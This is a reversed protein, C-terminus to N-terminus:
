YSFIIVSDASFKGIRGYVDISTVPYQRAVGNALPPMNSVRPCMEQYVLQPHFHTIVVVSEKRRSGSTRAIIGTERAVHYSPMLFPRNGEGTLSPGRTDNHRRLSISSSIADSLM